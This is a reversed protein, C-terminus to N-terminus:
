HPVFIEVAATDSCEALLEALTKHTSPDTANPAVDCCPQLVFRRERFRSHPITLMPTHIIESGFLIIDIDIEREHWKERATRGIEQEVLQLEEVLEFPSANYNGAVAINIFPDQETYGVPETQYFRSVKINTLIPRLLEVAFLIHRLRPEINSGLSLVVVSM